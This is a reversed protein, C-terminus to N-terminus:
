RLFEVWDARGTPTLLVAQEATEFLSRRATSPTSPVGYICRRGSVLPDASLGVVHRYPTPRETRAVRLM